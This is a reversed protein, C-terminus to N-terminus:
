PTGREQGPDAPAAPPELRYGTSNPRFRRATIATRRGTPLGNLYVDCIAGNPLLERIVVKRVGRIRKDNDIWVQGIALEQV